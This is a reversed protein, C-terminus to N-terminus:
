RWGLAQFIVDVKSEINRRIMESWDIEPLHDKKEEDFAMVNKQKGKVKIKKTEIKGTFELLEVLENIKQKEMDKVLIDDVNYYDKWDEKLKSPMLKKGEYYRQEEIKEEYGFPKTYIYYYPEGVLKRFGKKEAYELARVWISKVNYERIPKSLKTPFAIDTLPAKKIEKKQNKIWKTIEERGQGEHIRRILEKQFKVMFPTSDKRKTEIGVTEESMEGDPKILYGHYRCKALILISEFTGEYEFQTNIEQKGFKSKSWELIYENLNNQLNKETDVFIADTDVYVVQYGESEVRKVVYHLLDRILFTITGAVESDYLRFFPNGFVGYCSNVIGKIAKYYISYHKNESTGEKTQAKKDGINNKIKMLKAATAPLLANEDQKFIKDEIEICNDGMEERLNAPDLCFDRLIQPYASSLDYESIGKLLGTKFAERFAGQYKAKKNDDKKSPLVINREKAEQLVLVDILRSNYEMDEWSAKTLIRVANFYDGIYGKKRELRALDIVDQQNRKKVTENVQSFDVNKYKKGEGFEDELVADLAYGKRKNLTIKKDWMMYDVISTGAPYYMGRKGYRNKRIPSIKTAFDWSLVKKVRNALYPWDFFDMYWAALIDFQEKQLYYIFNLLLEKEDEYDELFFTIPENTFSNYISICSVPCNALNPNPHVGKETKIEIDLMAWKIDTEEIDDIKDILYRNHLFVDAEWSDATKQKKIQGPHLVYNRKLNDGFYSKFDTEGNVKEYYYPYFDEVKDIILEKNIRRFLYIDKGVSHINVLKM